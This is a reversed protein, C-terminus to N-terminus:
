YMHLYLSCQSYPCRRASVFRPCWKVYGSRCEEFADSLADFQATLRPLVFNSESFEPDVVPLTLVLIHSAAYSLCKSNDHEDNYCILRLEAYQIHVNASSSPSSVRMAQNVESPPESAVFSAHPSSMAFDDLDPNEGINGHYDIIEATGSTSSAPACYM